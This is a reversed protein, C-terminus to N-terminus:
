PTLINANIAIAKATDLNDGTVMRVTVGASICSIIAQPVDLRPADAIGLLAVLQVDKLIHMYYQLDKEPYKNAAEELEKLTLDKYGVIM